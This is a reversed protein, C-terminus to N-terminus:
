YLSLGSTIAKLTQFCIAAVLSFKEDSIVTEFALTLMKVVLEDKSCYALEIFLDIGISSQVVGLLWDNRPRTFICYCM